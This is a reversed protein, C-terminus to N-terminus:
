KAHDKHLADRMRRAQSVDNTILNMVWDPMWGNLNVHNVNIITTTGDENPIFVSGQNDIFGRVHSSREPIYNCEISTMPAIGINGYEGDLKEKGLLHVFERAKM